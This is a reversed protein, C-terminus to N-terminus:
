AQRADHQFVVFEDHTVKYRRCGQRSKGKM